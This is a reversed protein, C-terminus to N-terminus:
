RDVVFTVNSFFAPERRMCYNRLQCANDYVVYKPLDERDKRTYLVAFADRPSEGRLFFHFRSIVRHPCCFVFAGQSRHPRRGKKTSKSGGKVLGSVNAANWEGVTQGTACKFEESTRSRGDEHEFSTYRPLGRRQEWGPLAYHGLADQEARFTHGPPLPHMRDGEEDRGLRGRLVGRELESMAEWQGVSPQSGEVGPLLDQASTRDEALLLAEAETLPGWDRSLHQLEVARGLPWLSAVVWGELLGDGYGTNGRALLTLEYLHHLAPLFFAPFRHGGQADLVRRLIPSHEGLQRRDEVTADEGLLLERVV